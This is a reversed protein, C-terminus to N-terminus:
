ENILEELDKVYKEFGPNTWNDVLAAVASSPPTSSKAIESAVYKWADM